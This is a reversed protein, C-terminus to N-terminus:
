RMVITNSMIIEEPKAEPNKLLIDNLMNFEASRGFIKFVNDYEPSTKLYKETEDWIIQFSPTDAYRHEIHKNEDNLEYYTDLWKFGPFKQRMCAIPLFLIIEVAIDKPIGSEIFLIIAQEDSFLLPDSELLKIGKPLYYKLDELFKSTM